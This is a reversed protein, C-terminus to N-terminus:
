DPTDPTDPTEPAKGTRFVAPKGTLREAGIEVFPYIVYNSEPALSSIRCRLISGDIEPRAITIAATDSVPAWEFGCSSSSLVGQGFLTLCTVTASTGDVEVETQRFWEESSDVKNDDCAWSTLVFCYLLYAFFKKM